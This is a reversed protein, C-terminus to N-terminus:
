LPYQELKWEEMRGTWPWTLKTGETGPEVKLPSYSGISFRDLSPLARVVMDAAREVALASRESVKRGYM